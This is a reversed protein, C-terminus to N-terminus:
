SAPGGSAEARHLVALPCGAFHLLKHTMSGVALGHFGGLGRSGVVLLDAKHSADTLVRVPDLRHVHVEVVVAPHRERLPAVQDEVLRRREAVEENDEPLPRLLHRPWGQPLGLANVVRVRDGRLAAEEFAYELAARSDPSGDTGAVIRGHGASAHGVVVVPCPAHGVLQLVTSGMLMNGVDEGKAGLVVSHAQAAEALLLQAPTGMPLHTSVELAPYAERVLAAAEEVADDGHRKAEEFRGPPFFPFDGEWRPLTHLLRLASGRLTADHAAWMVARLSRGSGDVGVVIPKAMM